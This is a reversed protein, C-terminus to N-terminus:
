FAWAATQFSTPPAWTAKIPSGRAHRPGAGGCTSPGEQAEARRPGEGGPAPRSDRASIPRRRPGRQVVLSRPRPAAAPSPPLATQLLPARLRLEAIGVRSLLTPRPASTPLWGPRGAPWPSQRWAGLYPDTPLPGPAPLPLPRVGSRRSRAQLSSPHDVLGRRVLAEPVANTRPDEGSKHQHPPSDGLHRGSGAETQAPLWSRM